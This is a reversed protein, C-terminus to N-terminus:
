GFNLRSSRSAAQTAANLIQSFGSPVDVMPLHNILIYGHVAYLVTYDDMQVELCHPMFDGPLPATPPSNGDRDVVCVTIDDLLLRFYEWEIGQPPAPAKIASQLWEVVEPKAMLATKVFEPVDLHNLFEM